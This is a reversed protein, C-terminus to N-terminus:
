VKCCDHRVGNLVDDTSLPRLSDAAGTTTHEYRLRLLLRVDVRRGQVLPRRTKKQIM